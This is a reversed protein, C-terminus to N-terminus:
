KNRRHRMKRKLVGRRHVRRMRARQVCSPNPKGVLGVKLEAGLARAYRQFMSLRANPLEMEILALKYITWKEIRLGRREHRPADSYRYGIRELMEQATKGLAIRAAVLQSALHRRSEEETPPSAPPRSRKRYM